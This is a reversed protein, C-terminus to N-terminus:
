RTWTRLRRAAAGNEGLQYISVADATFTLPEFPEAEFSALDGLTAVGVTVHAVYNEGSHQPVYEEIFRITEDNIDPEAETRVFADATGGGETFPRLADILRRQFDLVESGPAVVIAGIGLLPRLEVHTLAQATLTLTELDVSAQVTRIADYVQELEATRVYRQLVTVHPHHDTDLAFGPPSAVSTLMRANLAAARALMSADPDLLVDVATLAEPVSVDSM